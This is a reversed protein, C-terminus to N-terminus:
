EVEVKAKIEATWGDVTNNTTYAALLGSAVKIKLSVPTNLFISSRMTPPESPQMIVSTLSTLHSFNNYDISTVSNPITVSTLYTCDAIAGDSISSVGAPITYATDTKGQPYLMLTTGAKNFVVGDISKYNTNSSDVTISTLGTCIEFNNKVIGSTLSNPITISTLGRCGMFATMSIKSVGAPITYASGTKGEPYRILTTGAKDFLVGDISKYNTNGSDVAISTLRPCNWFPRNGISTVSNPITISTLGSASFADHGISIVSNPLTVSTLDVCNLFVNQGISTVNNGITVSSLGGCNAFLLNSINTLTDPLTISALYNNNPKRINTISGYNQLSEIVTFTCGSLDYSVYKGSPIADFLKHLPDTDGSNTGSLLSADAITVKVVIPNAQSTGRGAAAAAAIFSKMQDLNSENFIPFLDDDTFIYNAETTLAPYIHVVETKGAGELTDNVLNLHMFYYGADLSLTGNLTGASIQGPSATIDGGTVAGGAATTITLAASSITTPFSISYSFTGTGGTTIPTLTINATQSNGDMTVSATGSAAATGSGGAGIYATVTITWPTADTDLSVEMTAGPAFTEDTHSRSPHSFSIIYSQFATDPPNLGWPYLTRAAHSGKATGGLTVTLLSSGGANNSIDVPKLSLLNDCGALALIGALLVLGTTYRIYKMSFTKM